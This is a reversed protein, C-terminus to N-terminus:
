RQRQGRGAVLKEDYFDVKHLPMVVSSLINVLHASLRKHFRTLLVMATIEAASHDAKAIEVLLNDSRKGGARGDEILEVARDRDQADLVPGVETMLRRSLSILDKIETKLPGSPVKGAGLKFVESVNKIYDGLREVDKSLTMLLLCYPIHDRSLTVHAIVAKRIQRELRNVEIDLKYVDARAQMPLDQDFIHPYVLGQMEEVLSLMRRFKEALGEMPDGKKFISLLENWM